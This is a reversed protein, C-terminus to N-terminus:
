YGHRGDQCLADGVCGAGSHGGAAHDALGPLRGAPNRVADNQWCREFAGSM